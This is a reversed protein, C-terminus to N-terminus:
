GDDLSAIFADFASIDYRLPNTTISGLPLGTEPLGWRVRGALIEGM